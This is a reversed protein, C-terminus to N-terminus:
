WLGQASQWFSCCVFLSRNSVSGPTGSKRLEGSTVDLEFPGFCIGPSIPAPMSVSYGPLDMTARSVVLKCYEIVLM